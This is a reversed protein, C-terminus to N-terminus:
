PQPVFGEGTFLKVGGYEGTLPLGHLSTREGCITCIVACPKFAPDIYRELEPFTYLTELRVGSKPADLLWWFLYELDHSDIRLGVDLCGSSKLDRGLQLYPGRLDMWNAFLITEPPEFLVSGVTCGLVPQCPITWPEGGDKLALLPRTRNFLVWPLSATLLALAIFTQFARGRGAAAYADGKRGAMLAQELAAGFLPAALVFVPLQYRAGFLDPHVVLALMAYGGASAALWAWLRRDRTRRHTLVLLILTAIVLCVHLPNGAIDEHNWGWLLSFDAMRPDLGSLLRRLFDVLALNASDSPMAFNMATNRVLSAFFAGPSYQGATLAAVWEGPGLPGGFTLLNRIWYGANLLAAPLLILGCQRLLVKLSIHLGFGQRRWTTVLAALYWAGLPLVLPYFLGKTLMGLGLALGLFISEITDLPRAAARLVLWATCALWLSTVVDNQTSTAQLLIMPLSFAFAAAAWQGPRKVGLEASALSAAALCLLMAGWQVLGALQNGGSLLRLHLIAEEAWIPHFLQPLYATAYPRLSGDQIWHMVRSLHYHFSDTNNPPAKLVIVLLLGSLIGTALLLLWDTKGLQRLGALFRVGGRRLDGRRLGLVCIGALILAWSLSVATQNLLNLLSLLETLGALASGWLIAAYLAAARLGVAPGPRPAASARLGQDWGLLFLFLATWALLPLIAPM